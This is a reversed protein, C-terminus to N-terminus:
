LAPREPQFSFDDVFYAAAIELRALAFLRAM